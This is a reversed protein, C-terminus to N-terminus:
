LFSQHHLFFNVKFSKCIFMAINPFLLNAYITRKSTKTNPSNSSKQVTKIYQMKSLAHENLALLSNELQVKKKDIALSM